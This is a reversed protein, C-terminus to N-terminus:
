FMNFNLSAKISKLKGGEQDPIEWIPQNLYMKIKEQTTVEPNYIIRISPLDNANLLTQIGLIGKKGSLYGSLTPMQRSIAPKELDPFTIDYHAKAVNDISDNFMAIYHKFFRELMERKSITDIVNSLSSLKFNVKEIKSKGGHLLIKMEKKEIQSRLFESDVEEDINMYIRLLLPKSYESELAYYKKDIERFQIGLYNVDIPDTMNNVYLTLVKVQKIEKEPQSIKFKVPNYIMRAIEDATIESPNYLIKVRHGTVYTKVGYVGNITQVKRAFSVSSGYCKVSRLGGIETYETKAKDFDGWEMDIVPMEWSKGIIVGTVAFLITMIPILIWLGKKGNVSLAKEPCANICDGCMTCDIHKIIESKNLPINYPCKKVCEECGQPCLSKERKIKLLPFPSGKRCFIELIYGALIIAGALFYWALNIGLIQILWYALILSVGFLLFRSINMFAGLPCIYKCWFMKVFFSGLLLIYIASLALWINIEGKFGTVSAYYPDFQKCFLESSSISIYLVIFLIIYKISRLISDIVSGDNVVIEKIQFKDRLRGLKETIFGLPCLYACFLKGLLFASILLLIGLTIQVTTMDCALSGTIFYASIAQIGGFPCLSEPNFTSAKGAFKFAFLAIAVIIALQISKRLLSLKIRM